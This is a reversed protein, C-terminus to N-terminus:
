PSLHNIWRAIDSSDWIWGGLMAGHVAAITGLQIDGPNAEILGTNPNYIDRALNVAAGTDGGSDYPATQSRVMKV